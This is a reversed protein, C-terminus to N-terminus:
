KLMSKRRQVTGRERITRNSYFFLRKIQDLDIASVIAQTIPKLILFPHGHELQLVTGSENDRQRERCARYVRLLMIFLM